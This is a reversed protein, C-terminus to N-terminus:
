PGSDACPHLSAACPCQPEAPGRRRPSGQLAPLSRAEAWRQGAREQNLFISFACAADTHGKRSLIDKLCKNRQELFRSTAKWSLLGHRPEVPLPFPKLEHPILIRFANTVKHKSYKRLVEQRGEGMYGGCQLCRGEVLLGGEM